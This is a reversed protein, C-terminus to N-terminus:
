FTTTTIVNRARQMFGEPIKPQCLYHFFVNCSFQVAQILAAVSGSHTNATFRRPKGRSSLCRISTLHFSLLASRQEKDEWIVCVESHNRYVNKLPICYFQDTLYIRCRLIHGPIEGILGDCGVGPIQYLCFSRPWNKCNFVSRYMIRTHNEIM